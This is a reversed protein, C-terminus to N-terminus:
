GQLWNTGDCVVWQQLAGGATVAGRFANATNGDTVFSRAGKTGAGCAPLTGVTLPTTAVYTGTWLAKAVGVGGAIQLIGTTGSTADTTGELKLVGAGPSTETADSTGGAGIMHGGDNFIILRRRITSSADPVTSFDMRGPMDGSGSIGTDALGRIRAVNVFASGDSGAFGINGIVDAAQLVTHSGVSTGRSKGQIVFAGGSDNSWRTITEVPAATSHLQMNGTLSPGGAVSTSSGYIARPTGSDNVWAYALLSGNNGLYAQISDTTGVGSTSQLFLTSGAGSGGILKSIGSTFTASGDNNFRFTEAFTSGDGTSITGVSLAVNSPFFARMNGGANVGLGYRSNGGHYLLLKQDGVVDVMDLSQQGCMGGLGNDLVVINSAVTCGPDNQVRTSTIGSYVNTGVRVNTLNAQIWVGIAFDAFNNGAVVARTGFSSWTRLMNVGRTGTAATTSKVITNNSVTLNAADTMLVCNANNPTTSVGVDGLFFLNGVIDVVNNGNVNVCAQSAAIHSDSISTHLTSAVGSATVDRFGTGVGAFTVNHIYIGEANNATVDVANSYNYINAHNIYVVISKSGIEIGTTGWNAASDSRGVIHVDDFICNWCNNITIGRTFGVNGAGQWVQVGKVQLNAYPNSASVAGAFAIGVSSTQIAKFSVNEIRWQGTTSAANIALGGSSNDVCVVSTFRGDGIFSIPTTSTLPATIRYQGAPLYVAGGGALIGGQTTALAQAANIAAQIATTDNAVCNNGSAGFTRVNVVSGTFLQTALTSFPIAQAPGSSVGLRGLVSNAPLTQPFNPVQAAASALGALLLFAAILKRM